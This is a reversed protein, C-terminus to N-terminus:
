LKVYNLLIRLCFFSGLSVMYTSREKVNCRMSCGMLIVM